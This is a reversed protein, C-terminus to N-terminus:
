PLFRRYRVEEHREDAVEFIKRAGDLRWGHHEYFARARLNETLVWLAAQRYGDRTLRDLAGDM